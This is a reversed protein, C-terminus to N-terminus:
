DITDEWNVNTTDCLFWGYYVVQMQKNFFQPFYTENVSSGQNSSSSIKYSIFGNEWPSTQGSAEYGVSWKSLDTYYGMKGLAINGVFEDLVINAPTPDSDDITSVPYKKIIEKDIPIWIYDYHTYSDSGKCVFDRYINYYYLGIHKNANLEIIYWDHNCVIEQNSLSYTSCRVKMDENGISMIRRHVYKIGKEEEKKIYSEPMEIHYGENCPAGGLADEYWGLYFNKETPEIRNVNNFINLCIKVDFLIENETIGLGVRCMSDYMYYSLHISNKKFIDLDYDLYRTNTPFVKASVLTNENNFISSYIDVELYAGGSPDKHVKWDEPHVIVEVYMISNKELNELNKLYNIEM